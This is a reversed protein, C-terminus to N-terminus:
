LFEVFGDGLDIGGNLAADGAGFFTNAVLEFLEPVFGPCRQVTMLFDDPLVFFEQLIKEIRETVQLRASEAEKRKERAPAAAAQILKLLMGGCFLGAAMVDDGDRLGGERPVFGDTM